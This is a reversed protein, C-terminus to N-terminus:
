LVRSEQNIAFCDTFSKYYLNIICIIVYKGDRLIIIGVVFSPLNFLNFLDFKKEQSAAIKLTLTVSLPKRPRKKFLESM